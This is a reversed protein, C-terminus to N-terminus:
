PQLARGPVGGGGRVAAGAGRLRSDRVVGNAGAPQGGDHGGSGPRGAIGPRSDAVLTAAGPQLCGAALCRRDAVRGPAGAGGNGPHLRVVCGTEDLAAVHLVASLGAGHRPDALLVRPDALARAARRGPRLAGGGTAVAAPARCLVGPRGAGDGSAAPLLWPVGGADAGAFAGLSVAGMAPRDAGSGAAPLGAAVARAEAPRARRRIHAVPPDADVAPAGGPDVLAGAPR